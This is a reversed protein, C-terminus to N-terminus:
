LIQKPVYKSIDGGHRQIDRVVSSSLASYEPRSIIFVSEVNPAMDLNMLGINREFEFDASTRIGRLIFQANQDKCFDVTLGNYIKVEIKPENEFVREIQTKREEPSYLYKKNSNNGIAIILNDFLPLARKIIDEHGVTIPDFSGPFVAIRRM